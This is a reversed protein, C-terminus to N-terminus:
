ILIRYQTIQILGTWNSISFFYTKCITLRITICRCYYLQYVTIFAFQLYLIDPCIKFLQFSSLPTSSERNCVITLDATLNPGCVQVTSYVSSDFMVISTNFADIFLVFGLM